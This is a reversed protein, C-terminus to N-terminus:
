SRKLKEIEIRNTSFLRQIISRLIAWVLIISLLFFTGVDINYLAIVSMDQAASHLHSAGRHRAIYEVWYIAKQLPKVPEDHYIESM